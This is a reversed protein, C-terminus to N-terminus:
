AVSSSIRLLVRKWNRGVCSSPLVESYYTCTSGIAHLGCMWVDEFLDECADSSTESTERVPVKVNDKYELFKYEYFKKKSSDLYRIFSSLWTVRVFTQLSDLNGAGKEVAAYFKLIM